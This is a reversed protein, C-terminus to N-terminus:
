LLQPEIVASVIGELRQLHAHFVAKILRHVRYVWTYVFVCMWGDMLIYTTQSSCTLLKSLSNTGKKKRM